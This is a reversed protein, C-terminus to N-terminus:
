LPACHSSGQAIFAKHDMLHITYAAGAGEKGIASPLENQPYLEWSAVKVPEKKAETAYLGRMRRNLSCKPLAERM